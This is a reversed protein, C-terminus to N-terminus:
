CTYHFKKKKKTYSKLIGMGELEDMITYLVLILSINEVKKMIQSSTLHENELAKLVTIHKESLNTQNM